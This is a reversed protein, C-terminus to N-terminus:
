KTKLVWSKIEEGGGGYMGHNRGLVVSLDVRM